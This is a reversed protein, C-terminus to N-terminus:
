CKRKHCGDKLSYPLQQLSQLASCEGDAARMRTGAAEATHAWEHAYAGLVLISSLVGSTAQDLGTGQGILELAKAVAASLRYLLNHELLLRRRHQQGSSDAEIYGSLRCVSSNHCEFVSLEDANALVDLVELSLITPRQQM